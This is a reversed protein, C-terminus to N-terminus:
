THNYRGVAGADNRNADRVPIEQVMTVAYLPPSSPAAHRLQPDRQEPRRPHLPVPRRDLDVGALRDRQQRVEDHRGFPVLFRDPVTSVGRQTLQRMFRNDDAIEVPPAEIRESPAAVPETTPRVRPERRLVRRLNSPITTM